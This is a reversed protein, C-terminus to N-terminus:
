SYNDRTTKIKKYLYITRIIIIILVTHLFLKMENEVAMLLKSIVLGFCSKLLIRRVLESEMITEKIKKSM